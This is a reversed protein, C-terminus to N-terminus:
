AELAKLAALKEAEREELVKQYEEETMKEMSIGTFGYFITMFVLGGRTGRAIKMLVSAFSGMVGTCDVIGGFVMACMILSITWMMNQMGGGSLLEVLDPNANESVFGYNLTLMYAKPDVIGQFAMCIVGLIVGGMLSPLAPLKLAVCAIVFIPPILYLPSVSFESQIDMMLQNVYSMDARGATKLGLILYIILAITLSPGTTWVM